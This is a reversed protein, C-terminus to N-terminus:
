PRSDRKVIGWNAIFLTSSAAPARLAPMCVAGVTLDPTVTVAVFSARLASLSM